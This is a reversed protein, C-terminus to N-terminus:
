FLSFFFTLPGLDNAPDIGKESHLDSAVTKRLWDKLQQCVLCVICFCFLQQTAAQIATGPNKNHYYIKGKSQLQSIFEM